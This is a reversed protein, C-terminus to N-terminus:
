EPRLTTDYSGAGETDRGTVVAKVGPLKEAKSTDMNLIRARPYPSRLIKGNLMRPLTLDATFRAKATAKAMSDIRPIRKGILPRETM